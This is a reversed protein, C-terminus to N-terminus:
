ICHKSGVIYQFQRRLTAPWFDFYELYACSGTPAVRLRNRQIQLYNWM